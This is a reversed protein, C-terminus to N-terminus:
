FWFGLKQAAARTMRRVQVPARALAAERENLRARAEALEQSLAEELTQELAERDDKPPAPECADVTSM